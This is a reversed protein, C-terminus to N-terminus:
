MLTVFINLNMKVVFESHENGDVQVVLDGRQGKSDVVFTSIQDKIGRTLGEGHATARVLDYVEYKIPCGVFM